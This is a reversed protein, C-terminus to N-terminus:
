VPTDWRERPEPPQVDYHNYLLLACDGTGYTGVVLYRATEWLQATVNRTQLLEAVLEACARIGLGQASISPQRCLRALEQISAQIHQEVYADLVSLQDAM